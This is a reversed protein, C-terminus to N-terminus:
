ESSRGRFARWLDALWELLEVMLLGPHVKIKAATIVHIEDCSISM